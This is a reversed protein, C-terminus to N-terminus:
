ILGLFGQSDSVLKMTELVGFLSQLGKAVARMDNKVCGSEIEMAMADAKQDRMPACHMKLLEALWEALSIMDLVKHQVQQILLDTDLHQVIAPHDRTPVLTQLVERITDFLNGLRSPFLKPSRENGLRPPPKSAFVELEIALAEWYREAAIKRPNDKEHHAPTFHIDRDYNVDIRLALKNMFVPLDLERLSNKTVPPYKSATHLIEHQAPTLKLCGPGIM